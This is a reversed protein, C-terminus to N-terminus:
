GSLDTLGIERDLRLSRKSGIEINGEETYDFM